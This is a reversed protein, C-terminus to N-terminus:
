AAGGKEEITKLISAIASGASTAASIVDGAPSLIVQIIQAQAEDKTPMESLRKMESAGYLQGEMVAGKLDLQEYEKVCDILERAVSVLSDSGYVVASPGSLLEAIPALGTESFVKAALSNKVVTVRIGKDALGARFNNNDNSELGRIDVLVAENVEAFMKRYMGTIMEKVPKSM